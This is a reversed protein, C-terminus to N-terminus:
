RLWAFVILVAALASLSVLMATGLCGKGAVPATFKGPDKARLEKELAEIFDKSEKLGQGTHERYLKIANIMRGAYVHDAIERTVEPSISASM